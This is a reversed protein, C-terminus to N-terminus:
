AAVGRASACLSGAGGGCAAARDAAGASAPVYAAVRHDGSRQVSQVPFARDGDAFGTRRSEDLRDRNAADNRRISFNLAANVVARAERRARLASRLMVSAKSPM